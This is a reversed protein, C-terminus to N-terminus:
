QLSNVRLTHIRSHEKCNVASRRAAHDDEFSVHSRRLMNYQLCSRCTSCITVELIQFAMRFGGM